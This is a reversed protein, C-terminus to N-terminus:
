SFNIEQLDNNGIREIHYKKENEIIEIVEDITEKVLIRSGGIFNISTDPLNEIWQINNENIFIVDGALRTLKIM